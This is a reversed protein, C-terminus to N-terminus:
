ASRHQINRDVAMPEGGLGTRYTVTWEDAVIPTMRVALYQLEGCLGCLMRDTRAVLRGEYVRQLEEFPHRCSM